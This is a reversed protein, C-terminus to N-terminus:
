LILDKNDFEYHHNKCLAVLNEIDNVVSIPTNEDFRWKSTKV